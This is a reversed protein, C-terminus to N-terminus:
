AVDRSPSLAATAANDCRRHKRAEENRLLRRLAELRTVGDEYERVQFLRQRDRERLWEDSM